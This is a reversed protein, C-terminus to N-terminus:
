MTASGAGRFARGSSIYGDKDLARGVDLSRARKALTCRYHISVNQKREIQVFSYDIIENTCTNNICVKGM